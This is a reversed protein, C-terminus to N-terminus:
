EYFTLTAPDLYWQQTQLKSGWNIDSYVGVYNGRNQQRPPFATKALSSTATAVIQIYGPPM